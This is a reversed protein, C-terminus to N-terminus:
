IDALSLVDFISQCMKVGPLRAFQAPNTYGWAVAAVDLRLAQAAEADRMEDGVSLVAQAPVGSAQLVARTKSRKGFISANCAFHDILRRNDEGLVREVNEQSNSTVLALQIGAAKLQRLMEDVGAFLQVREIRERMFERTYRVVAPLKWWSLELEAIIERANCSRLREMDAKALPKFKYRVAAVQAAELFVAFSDALTGDFDFIFLKYRLL